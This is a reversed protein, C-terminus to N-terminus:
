KSPTIFTYYFKCLFLVSEKEGHNIINIPLEGPTYVHAYMYRCMGM